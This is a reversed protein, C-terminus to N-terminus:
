STSPSRSAAYSAMAGLVADYFPTDDLLEELLGPANLRMHGFLGGLTQAGDLPHVAHLGPYDVDQERARRRLTSVLEKRRAPELRALVEQAAAVWRQQPLHDIAGGLSHGYDSSEEM